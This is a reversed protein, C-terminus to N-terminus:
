PQHHGNKSTIVRSRPLIVLQLLKASPSFWGCFMALERVFVGRCGIAEANVPVLAPLPKWIYLLTIFVTLIIQTWKEVTNRKYAFFPPSASGCMSSLFCLKQKMTGQLKGLIEDTHVNIVTTGCIEEQEMIECKAATGLPGCSISGVTLHTGLTM